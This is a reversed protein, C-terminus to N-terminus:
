GRKRALHLVNLCTLEADPRRLFSVEDDPDTLRDFLNCQDPSLEPRVLDGLFELHRTLFEVEWPRFPANRDAAVTMKRSPQWGSQALIDRLHRAPALRSGSGYKRRSAQLVATQIAMELEVPWPLLVHHFEDAELVAVRGAPKTVRNMERLVRVPDLSILSQACWILDFTDDPFPLTYVDARRVAIEVGAPPDLLAQRARKLYAPNADALTLRGAPGIREALQRSYFGDGCPADLVHSRSPLKLADITQYLEDRFSLHFSSQLPDYDPLKESADGSPATRRM